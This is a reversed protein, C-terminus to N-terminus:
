QRESRSTGERATCVRPVIARVALFLALWVSLAVAYGAPGANVAGILGLAVLGAFAMSIYIRAFTSLLANSPTSRAVL